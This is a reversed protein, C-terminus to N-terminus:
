DAAQAALAGATDFFDRYESVSGDRFRFFDAKHSTATKGTLKNRFSVRSLVVVRDGDAIVLNLDSFLQATAITSLNKLSISGM